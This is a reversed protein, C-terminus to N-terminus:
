WGEAETEIEIEVEEETPRGFVGVVAEVYVVILENPVALGDEVMNGTPLERPGAPHGEILLVIKM